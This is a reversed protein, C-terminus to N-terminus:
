RLAEERWAALEEATLEPPNEVVRLTSVIRRAIGGLPLMDPLEGRRGLECLHIARKAAPSPKAATYFRTRAAM